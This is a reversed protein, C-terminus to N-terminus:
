NEHTGHLDSKLSAQGSKELNEATQDATNQIMGIPTGMNMSKM